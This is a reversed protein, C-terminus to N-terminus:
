SQWNKHQFAASQKKNPKFITSDMLKKKTDKHLLDDFLSNTPMSKLVRSHKIFVINIKFYLIIGTKESLFTM